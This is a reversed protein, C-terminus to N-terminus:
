STRASISPRTGARTVRVPSSTHFVKRLSIVAGWWIATLMWSATFIKGLVAVVKMERPLYEKVNEFDSFDIEDIAPFPYTEFDAPSTIVGQSEDAWVKEEDESYFHKDERASRRAADKNLTGAPDLMGRSIWVYDYGADRRFEVEDKLTVCPRGTFAEQIERDMALEIMPARDVPEHRIAALLRNFDNRIAM